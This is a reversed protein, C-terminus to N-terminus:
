DIYHDILKPQRAKPRPGPWLSNYDENFYRGIAKLAYQTVKEPTKDIPVVHITRIRSHLRYQPQANRCTYGLATQGLCDMSTLDQPLSSVNQSDTPNLKVESAIVM